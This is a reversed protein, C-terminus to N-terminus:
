CFFFKRTKSVSLVHYKYTELSIKKYLFCKDLLLQQHTKKTNDPPLVIPLYIEFIWVDGRQFLMFEVM